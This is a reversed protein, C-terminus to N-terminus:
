TIVPEHVVRTDGTTDTEENVAVQFGLGDPLQALANFGTHIARDKVASHFKYIATTVMSIEAHSTSVTNPPVTNTASIANISQVVGGHLVMMCRTTLNGYTNANERQLSAQNILRPGSHVIKHTHTHGPQLWFSTSKMVRYRQCFKPSEFPKAGIMQQKIGGPHGGPQVATLEDLGHTWSDVTNVPDTMDRRHRIDYLTVHVPITTQNKMVHTSVVSRVVLRRNRTNQAATMEVIGFNEDLEVNEMMEDIDAQGMAMKQAGNENHFLNIEAAKQLGSEATVRDSTTCTIIREQTARKWGKLWKGVKGINLVTKSFAPNGRRRGGIRRKRSTYKRRKTVRYIKKSPSKRKRSGSSTTPKRSAPRRFPKTSRFTRAMTRGIKYGGYAFRAGGVLYGLTGGAAGGAYEWYRGTRDAM